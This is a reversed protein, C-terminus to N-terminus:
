ICAFYLLSQLSIGALICIKVGIKAIKAPIKDCGGAPTPHIPPCSKALARLARLANEVYPKM